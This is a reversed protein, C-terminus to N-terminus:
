ATIQLQGYATIYLDDPTLDYTTGDTSKASVFVYDNQDLQTNLTLTVPFPEASHAFHIEQQSQTINSDTGADADRKSFCFAVNKGTGSVQSTITATIQADIPTEGTYRIQGNSPMDFDSNNGHLATTVLLAQYSSSLTLAATASAYIAGFPNQTRDVNKPYWKSALNSVVTLVDGAQIKVSSLGSPGWDSSNITVVASTANIIHKVAIFGATPTLLDFSTGASIVNYLKTDEVTNSSTDNYTQRFANPDNLSINPNSSGDGNSVNLGTSATITRVNAGGSGDLALVGATGSLEDISRINGDVYNLQQLATIFETRTLTDAPIPGNATDVVFNNTSDPM